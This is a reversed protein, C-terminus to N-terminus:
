DNWENFGAFFPISTEKGKEPSSDRNGANEVHSDERLDWFTLRM